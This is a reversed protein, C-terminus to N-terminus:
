GGLGQRLGGVSPAGTANFPTSNPTSGRNVINGSNQAPQNGLNAQRQDELLQAHAAQVQQMLADHHSMILKTMLEFQIPNLAHKMQDFEKTLYEIYKKHDQGPQASVAEEALCCDREDEPTLLNKPDPNPNPYIESLSHGEFFMGYIKDLLRYHFAIAQPPMQQLQSFMTMLQQRQIAPNETSDLSVRIIVNKHGGAIEDPSLSRYKVGVPGVVNIVKVHDYYQYNNYEAMVFTPKLVLEGYLQAALKIRGVSAQNISTQETATDVGTQAIGQLNSAAGVSERLDNKAIGEMNTGVGTVVPPRLATLGQMDNTTIVGNPRMVLDDNRIGSTRSKLWMTALIMTKNDLTQNRTDNIEEQLSEGVEAVGMGPIQYEKPIYPCVVYPKQGHWFPNKEIKLLAQRNGIVIVSEVEDDEEIGQSEMEEATMVWKAPCLGWREIIEDKGRKNLVTFPSTALRRDINEQPRSAPPEANESHNIEVDPFTIESYWGKRVRDRVWQRDVLYQEGIWRAKQIDNYPVNIDSVQFTLLDVPEFTWVDRITEWEMQPVRKGDVVEPRWRKVQEFDWLIKRVTLGTLVMQRISDMVRSRFNNEDMQFYTLQTLAIAPGDEQNNDRGAYQMWDPAGFIMDYINATITEVARLIEPVFISALGQYHKKRQVLGYLEYYTLVKAKWDSLVRESDEFEKVVKDIVERKNELRSINDDSLCPLKKM